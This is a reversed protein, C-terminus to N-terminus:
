AGLPASFRTAATLAAQAAGIGVLFSTAGWEGTAIGIALGSIAAGAALMYDFGAHASLPIARSPGAAQIALGLLLAGIAFAILTASQGFGFVFPAVMIAPGAITEIAAHASLPITRQTRM